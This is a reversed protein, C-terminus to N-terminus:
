QASRELTSMKIHRFDLKLHHLHGKIAKIMDILIGLRSHLM